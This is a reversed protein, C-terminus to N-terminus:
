IQWRTHGSTYSISGGYEQGSVYHFLGSIETSVRPHDASAGVLRCMWAVDGTKVTQLYFTPM